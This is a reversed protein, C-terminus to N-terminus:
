PGKAIVFLHNLFMKLLTKSLLSNEKNEKRIPTNIAHTGRLVNRISSFTGLGGIKKRLRIAEWGEFLSLLFSDKNSNLLSFHEKFTRDLPSFGYDVHWVSHIQDVDVMLNHKSTSETRTCHYFLCLSYTGLVNTLSVAPTPPPLLTVSLASYSLHIYLLSLAISLSLHISSLSLPLFLHSHVLSPSLLFFMFFLSRSFLHSTSMQCSRALPLLLHDLSWLSHSLGRLSSVPFVSVRSRLISRPSLSLYLVQQSQSLRFSSLPFSPFSYFLSPYM